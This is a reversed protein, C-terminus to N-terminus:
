LQSSLTPSVPQAHIWDDPPPAATVRWWYDRQGEGFFYAQGVPQHLDCPGLLAPMHHGLPMDPLQLVAFRTNFRLMSKVTHLL